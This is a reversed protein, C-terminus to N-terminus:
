SAANTPSADARVSLLVSPAITDVPTGFMLVRNHSADALWLVDGSLDYFVKYINTFTHDSVGQYSGTTFNTQGLVNDANAGNGLSAADNYILVRNNGNDSVYVRGFADGSVYNPNSLGSRTTTAGGSNFTLQGLVADADAGNAKNTA